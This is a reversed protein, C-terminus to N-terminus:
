TLLDSAAVASTVTEPLLAWVLSGMPVSRDGHLLAAFVPADDDRAGQEDPAEKRLRRLFVATPEDPRRVWAVVHGDRARREVRRCRAAAHLLALDLMSPRVGSGFSALMEPGIRRIARNSTKVNNFLFQGTAYTDLWHLTRQALDVVLPLFVGNDGSLSFRLAVTRPDFTAGGTDDRLMLGAFGRELQSFPMGAYNNVVMV